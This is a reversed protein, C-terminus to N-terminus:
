YPFSVGLNVFQRTDLEAKLAMDPTLQWSAGIAGAGGPRFGAEGFQLGVRAASYLTWKRTLHFNWRAGVAPMFTFYHRIVSIGSWAWEAYLGAELNFSDNLGPLFGQDLSPFTAWFSFGLTNESFTGYVPSYGFAGALDLRNVRKFVDKSKIIFPDAQPAAPSNDEPVGGPADSEGADQPASGATESVNTDEEWVQAQSPLAFVTIAFWFIAAKISM